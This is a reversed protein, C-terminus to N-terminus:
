NSDSGGCCRHKARQLVVFFSPVFLVALCTSALMGSFVTIGISRRASAGAGSAFVLPLVGLIFALSTMVIPRFRVRAAEVAAELLGAGADVQERAVEVILIANKASLAILLVLGIQTYLNNAIGLSWLIGVTGLLALPVALIVAFPTNWSGYQGALVMYVLLLGLGFVAYTAGSALKEQYAMTTWDAQMGPPLITAATRDMTELAQGSSSGVAPLGNILASPYLNYLSILAPGPEYKVDALTGIPVMAGSGSRVQYDRLEEPTLRYGSDAQVFVPFTHGFKTIQNVYTSGLYTQLTQFVEGVRVGLIQAKDRDIRAEVQPVQSRFTSMVHQLTSQESARATVAATVQELKRYDFSGDALEIQMQFGGAAGLGQIPPPVLVTVRAGQVNALKASLGRYLSLLDQGRGRKSWDTLTVYIAAANPLSANNDLASIGGIAVAHEVGPTALATRTVEEVARQTRELSAADPLQVALLVYGQDEIPIFSTPLAALGICALAILGVATAAMAGSRTVMAAILKSYASELPLYIADFARYLLGKREAKRPRLWLASQTPKLTMANIASIVATAAIVLAFQRYMQGTIGPMFSAPLFVAMLVLTIGIIPGTLERMATIAAERPTEGHEVRRTVGEVVVIADDVVIGIALVIAFLTLLNISFGMAAMAGFTGILTVPVTTAPILTARWDQLFFVIVLLVLSAAEILTAYVERVSAEVFRTTDFPVSYHLGPPFSKSQAAITAKVAKAVDLANAEPSQYIAIGAAPKGDMALFQGYSQAGLEVRAVDRVRTIYGGDASGSKVVINEFQEPDELAGAVNVTLQYDQGTPTPPMGVQGAAVQQNQQRVADIVDSPTLGRAQLRHPDLWIRLSYQGTGFVNVEGVGPLRALTDRLSITAYNSLFLSDYRSDPSDLTIIELIATSKKKTTVGQQQVAEPLSALAASVRNQVLVQATDLNTGVKFTITLAYNGDNTSTSQMYLMDQVGNVQQEIPLAVTEIVTKASAGPYRASVQVTPPAIPPYQSVPLRYLAVSGILVTVLAIGNALVPRDIFFKAIM